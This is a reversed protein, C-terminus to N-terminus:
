KSLAALSPKIWFKKVSSKSSAVELLKTGHSLILRIEGIKGNKLAELLPVMWERELQHMTNLWTAWDSAMAPDLLNDLLLLASSASSGLVDAASSASAQGSSAIWSPPNFVREYGSRSGHAKAPGGGWLWLSNVAPHGQLEREANLPHAHWTMQVENLLRRWEREGPGRPMWIDINHGNAADPTSTSLEAWDDARLFWTKADGYMLTKGSETFLEAISQFLSRSEEDTLVLKRLDTLVLHDRAIHLHAPQLVFWIGSGIAINKGQMLHSAVPLGNMSDKHALGFQQAVWGEHPLTRSFADTDSVAVSRSRALLTAYSPTSLNRLLDAALEAPPLGFPILIDLNNM